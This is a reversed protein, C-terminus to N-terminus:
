LCTGNILPKYFNPIYNIPVMVLGFINAVHRVSRSIQCHKLPFVTAFAVMAQELVTQLVWTNILANILGAHAERHPEHTPLTAPAM